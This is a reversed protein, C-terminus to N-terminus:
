SGASILTDILDQAVVEGADLSALIAKASKIRNSVLSSQKRKARTEEGHVLKAAACRARGEKTTPGRSRSGHYRCVPSGNEAPQRCQEKTRKSLAQCRHCIIRGGCTRILPERQTTHM